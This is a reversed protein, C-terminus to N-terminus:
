ERQRRFFANNELYELYEIESMEGDSVMVIGEVHEFDLSEHKLLEEALRQVAVINRPESMLDIAQIKGNELLHGAREFDSECGTLSIREDYGVCLSAAYGACALIADKLFHAEAEDKPLDVPVVDMEFALNLNGRSGIQGNEVISMDKFPIEPFLRIHAVAHGAEHAAIWKEDSMDSDKGCFKAM